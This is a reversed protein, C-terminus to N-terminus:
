SVQLAGADTPCDIYGKGHHQNCGHPDSDPWISHQKCDNSPADRREPIRDLDVAPNIRTGKLRGELPAPLNLASTVFSLERFSKRPRTAGERVVDKWGFMLM